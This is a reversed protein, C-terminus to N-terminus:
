RPVLSSSALTVVHSHSTLVVFPDSSSQNSRVKGATSRFNREGEVPCYCIFVGQLLRPLDSFLCSWRIRGDSSSSTRSRTCPCGLLLRRSPSARTRMYTTRPWEKFLFPHVRYFLLVFTRDPLPPEVIFFVRRAVLHRKRFFSFLYWSWWLSVVVFYWRLSSLLSLHIFPTNVCFSFFTSPLYM